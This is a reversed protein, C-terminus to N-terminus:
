AAAFATEIAPQAASFRELSTWGELGDPLTSLTRRWRRGGHCGQYLGLLHRSMAKLPTGSELEQRMYDLFHTVVDARTPRPTGFLAEELEALVFPSHYAARGLMIGDVWALQAVGAALATIGGNLVIERGPYARKLAYVRGYELPPIERNQKPSLGTLWAKRAHVILTSCGADFVRTAFEHLFEPTDDHDVGIRTKVTVPLTVQARIAAVCEAVLAPERMLAAGFCGSQVRPSPCGINLNIEDYGQTAALQAAAALECPDSGGLQVAVPHEAPDFCLLRESAGNLLAKATLMETYLWAHPALLRLLYRCHRDTREMMPAVCLVHAPARRAPEPREGIMAVASELRTCAQHAWVGM